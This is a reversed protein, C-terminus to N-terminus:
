LHTSGLIKQTLFVKPMVIPLVGRSLGMVFIKKTQAVKHQVRTLQADTAHSLGMVFIKKTQAVKHQVRTLQADTAHLLGM